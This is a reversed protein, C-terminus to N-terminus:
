SFCSGNAVPLKFCGESLYFASHMDEGVTSAAARDVHGQLATGAASSWLFGGTAGIEAVQGAEAQIGGIFPM